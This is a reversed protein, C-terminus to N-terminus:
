KDSNDKRQYKAKMSQRSKTSTITTKVLADLKEAPLGQLIGVLVNIVDQEEGAKKIAKKGLKKVNDPSNCDAVAALSSAITLWVKM